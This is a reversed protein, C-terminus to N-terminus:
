VVPGRARQSFGAAAPADGQAQDGIPHVHMRRHRHKQLPQCGLLRHQHAIGQRGIAQGIAFVAPIFPHQQDLVAGASQLIAGQSAYGQWLQLTHLSQRGPATICSRRDPPRRHRWPPHDARSLRQFVRQHALAQRVQQTPALALTLEM